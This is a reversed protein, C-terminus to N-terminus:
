EEGEADRDTKVAKHAQPDNNEHNPWPEHMPVRKMISSIPEGQFATSIWEQTVDTSPNQHLTAPTNEPIEGQKPPAAPPAGSNMLIEGGKEIIQGSGADIGVVGNSGISLQSSGTASFRSAEFIINTGATVEKSGTINQVDSGEISQHKSGQITTNTSGSIISNMDGNVETYINGEITRYNINRGAEINIDRDAKFNFDNETHISVSDEAYVDIKGDSTLEIWATGRSNGIYILDESNHLVIQHGTRTRLRFHEGYPIRVDGDDAYEPKDLFAPFRRLFKPDGDDMVFQHGGLRSVFRPDSPNDVTGTREKRANNRKDLPGPTSIGYVNSITSRRMTSSTVGRYPDALLGQALLYGALPHLPRPNNDPQDTQHINQNYEAVPLPFESGSGYESEQDPSLDPNSYAAIGPVMHNIFPEPICGIWFGVNSDSTFACLVRVGVDPPVFSMGYSKQTDNYAQENGENEGNFARSTNGFFPPAYLVDVTQGEQGFQSGTYDVIRVKLGGMMKSDNHAVVEGIRIGQLNGRGQAGGQEAM